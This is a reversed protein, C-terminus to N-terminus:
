AQLLPIVGFFFIQGSARTWNQKQKGSPAKGGGSAALLIFMEHKFFDNPVTHHIAGHTTGSIHQIKLHLTVSFLHNNLKFSGSVQASINPYSVIHNMYNLKEENLYLLPAQASWADHLLIRCSSFPCSLEVNELGLEAFSSGNEMHNTGWICISSQMTSIWYTKMKSDMGGVTPDEGISSCWAICQYIIHGSHHTCIPLYTSFKFNCAMM